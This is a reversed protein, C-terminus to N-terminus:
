STIRGDFGYDTLIIGFKIIQTSYGYAIGFEREYWGATSSLLVM